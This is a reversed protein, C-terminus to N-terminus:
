TIVEELEEYFRCMQERLAQELRSRWRANRGNAVLEGRVGECVAYLITAEIAIRELDEPLRQSNM